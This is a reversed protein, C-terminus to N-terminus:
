EESREMQAGCHPCYRWGIQEDTTNIYFGCGSCKHKWAIQELTESDYLKENVWKGRKVPVKELMACKCGWCGGNEAPDITSADNIIREMEDATTAGSEDWVLCEDWEDHVTRILADANILRMTAGKRM